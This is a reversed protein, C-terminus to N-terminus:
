IRPDVESAAPYLSTYSLVAFIRLTLWRRALAPPFCSRIHPHALTVLRRKPVNARVESRQGGVDLMRFIVSKNHHDMVFQFEHIGTTAERARLIDQVSPIYGVTGLTGDEESLLQEFFYKTSDTLQFENKKRYAGRFGSSKWLQRYVDVHRSVCSGVGLCLHVHMSMSM